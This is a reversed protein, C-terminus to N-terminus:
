AARLAFHTVRTPPHKPDFPLLPLHTHWSSRFPAIRLNLQEEVGACGAMKAPLQQARRKSRDRKWWVVRLAPGESMECMCTWEM